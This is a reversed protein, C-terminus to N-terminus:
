CQLLEKLTPFTHLTAVPTLSREDDDRHYGYGTWVFDIGAAEAAGADARSDGIMLCQEASMALQDCAHRLPAPDPKKHPLTDGGIVLPFVREIGRLTLLAEALAPPKNTVIAMQWGRRDLDALTQEVGPYCQSHRGNADANHQLFVQTLRDHWQEDIDLARSARDILM